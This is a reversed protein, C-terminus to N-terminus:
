SFYKSNWEENSFNERVTFIIMCAMGCIAIFSHVVLFIFVDWSPTPVAWSFLVALAALFWFMSMFNRMPFALLARLSSIEGGWKHIFYFRGNKLPLMLIPDSDKDTLKFLEKPAIIKFGKLDIGLRKELAKVKQIAEYPIESRFHKSDLFRLRYKICLKEIQEITFIHEKNLKSEDILQDQSDGEIAKAIRRERAEDQELIGKVEELISDAPHKKQIKKLQEHLDVNNINM